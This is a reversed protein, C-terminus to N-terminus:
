ARPPRQPQDLFPYPREPPRLTRVPASGGQVPLYPAAWVLLEHPDQAADAVSPAPQETDLNGPTAECVAVAAPTVAAPESVAVWAAMASGAPGAIVSWCLALLCAATAFWRFM